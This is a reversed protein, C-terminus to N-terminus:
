AGRRREMEELRSKCMFCLTTVPRALLRKLAIDEGCSECIGYEGDEMAQLASRIKNILQRERTRLRVVQSLQSEASALDVFDAERVLERSIEFVTRKGRQTLENLQDLLLHKIHNMEKPDMIGEKGQPGRYLGDASPLGSIGM